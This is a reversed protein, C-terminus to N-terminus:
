NAIYYDALNEQAEVLEEGSVGNEDYEEVSVLKDNGPMPLMVVQNANPDQMGLAMAQARVSDMDTVGNSDEQADLINQRLVAIRDKTDSNDRSMESLETQPYLLLSFFVGILMILMVAIVTEFTRKRGVSKIKRLQEKAESDFNISRVHNREYLETYNDVESQSLYDKTEIVRGNTYVVNKRPAEIIADIDLETHEIYSAKNDIKKSKKELLAM